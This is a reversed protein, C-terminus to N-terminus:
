ALWSWASKTMAAGVMYGFVALAAVGAMLKQSRDPRKLAMVGLGIYVVLAILKAMLWPQQGPSMQLTVALLVGFLLLFTDNIHPAIKLWRQQLRPSANLSLMWRYVFLLLSVIALTMHLHKLLPYYAIM